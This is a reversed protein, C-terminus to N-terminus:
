WNVSLVGTVSRLHICDGERHIAHAAALRQGGSSGGTVEIDV